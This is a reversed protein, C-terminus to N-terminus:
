RPLHHTPQGTPVGDARVCRASGAAGGGSVEFSAKGLQELRQRIGFRCLEAAVNETLGVIADGLLPMFWAIPPDGPAEGGARHLFALTMARGSLMLTLVLIIKQRM